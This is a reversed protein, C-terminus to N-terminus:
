QKNTFFVPNPTAGVEARLDERSFQHRRRQVLSQRYTVRPINVHHLEMGRVDSRNSHIYTTRPKEFSTHTGIAQHVAILGGIVIGSWIDSLWNKHRVVKSHSMLILAIVGTTSVLLRVTHLNRLVSTVRKSHWYGIVFVLVFTLLAEQFSPFSMRAELLLDKLHDQNSNASSLTANFCFELDQDVSKTRIYTAPWACASPCITLFFPKITGATRQVVSVVITVVFVGNLLPVLIQTCDKSFSILSKDYGVEQAYKVVILETLM